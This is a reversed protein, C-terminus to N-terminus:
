KREGGSTGNGNPKMLPEEGKRPGNAIIVIDEEPQHTGAAALLTVRPIVGSFRGQEDVVIIPSSYQASLAFLDSVPTEERVVPMPDGERWPLETSGRQVADAIDDEWVIGHPAR